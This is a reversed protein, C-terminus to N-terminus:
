RALPSRPRRCRGPLSQLRPSPPRLSSRPTSPPPRSKPATVAENALALETVAGNALKAQTVANAALKENLVAGDALATSNVAGAALKAATVADDALLLDNIAGAKVKDSTVAELAIKAATVANQALKVETVMGDVLDQGVAQRAQGQVKPSPDGTLAATNQGVLCVWVPDYGEIHVTVSGGLSATITAVQTTVNPTFGETTGVHVQILSFDSPAEASDDWQGDWGILLGALASEVTPATPIPPPETNIPDPVLAVGGDPQVGISGKLTGEEDYIDLSGGEISANNLQNSRELAALRDELQKFYGAFQKAQEREDLGFSM